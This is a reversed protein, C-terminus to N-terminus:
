ASLDASEVGQSAPEVVQTALMRAKLAKVKAYRKADIARHCIVCARCGRALRSPILNEPTYEHGQPCHTVLAKARQVNVRQSVPELHAPNCCHKVRCLHDLTEEHIPGVLARYAVRHALQANKRGVQFYGYGTKYHVTSQWLWCGGDPDTADFKVKTWFREPLRSDFLKM